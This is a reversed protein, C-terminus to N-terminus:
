EDGETFLDAQAGGRLLREIAERRKQADRRKTRQSLGDTDREVLCGLADLKEGLQLAALVESPDDGGPVQELEAMGGDDEDAGARRQARPLIGSKIAAKRLLWWARPMIDGRSPDFGRLAEAAAVFCQQQADDVTWGAWGSIKVIGGAFQKHLAAAIDLPELQLQLTAADSM